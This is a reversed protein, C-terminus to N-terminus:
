WLFCIASGLLLTSKIIEFMARCSTNVTQFRFEFGIKLSNKLGSIKWECGQRKTYMWIPIWIACVFNEVCNLTINGISFNIWLQCSFHFQLCRCQNFDSSRMAFARGANIIKTHIVSNLVNRVTNVLRGLTDMEGCASSLIWTSM